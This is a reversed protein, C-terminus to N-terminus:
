RAERRLLAPLAAVAALMVPVGPPLLPTAAVAIVAA